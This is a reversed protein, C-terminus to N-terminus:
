GSGHQLKTAVQRAMSAANRMADRYPGRAARRQAAALLDAIHHAVAADTARGPDFAALPLRRKRRNNRRCRCSRTGARERPELREWDASVIM